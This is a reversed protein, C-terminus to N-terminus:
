SLGKIFQNALNKTTNIYDFAIVGTNKLERVYKLWRKVHRSSKMNGNSNYVKIIMTQNDCIMLITPTTKEVIPLDMLLERLGEVEITTTDLTAVEVEM